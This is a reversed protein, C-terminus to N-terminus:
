VILFLGEFLGISSKIALYFAYCPYLLAFTHIHVIINSNFITM